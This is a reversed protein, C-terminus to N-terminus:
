RAKISPSSFPRAAGSAIKPRTRKRGCHSGCRKKDIAVVEGVSVMANHPWGDETVTMLFMAEHQKRELHEGNLLEFLDDSLESGNGHQM